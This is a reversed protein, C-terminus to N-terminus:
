SQRRQRDFFRYLTSRSVGLLEAARRKNGGAKQLAEIVQQENIKPGQHNRVFMNPGTRFIATPLHEPEITDGRCKVLAYQIVNQMERCNGSWEHSKLLSLTHNSFKVGSRYSDECFMTLFHNALLEIDVRRERLPPIMLPMVCLRYYLDKRFKGRAVAQELDMNTASIVRVDVRRTREDGVREFGGDQLVRLFKVQMEPSLEAVEDLFITGKDALEFRGKKNYMAGTFAGKVHGFLESELLGQPLAGCNVPVFHKHARRSEKHIALAVLEKGTGSEGQILVPADTQAVQKVTECLDMMKEDRCVIGWFGEERQRPLLSKLNTIDEITLIGLREAKLKFPSACMLVTVDKIQGNMKIQLAIKGRQKQDSYLAKLALKRTECHSCAESKGYGSHDGESNICCFVKGFGQGSIEEAKVGFIHEMVNNLSLVTGEEDIILLGCPLADMLERTIDNNQLIDFLDNM